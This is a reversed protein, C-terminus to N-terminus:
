TTVENLIAKRVADRDRSINRPVSEGQYVFGTLTSRVNQGAAQDVRHISHITGSKVMVIRNPRPPIALLSSECSRLIERVTADPSPSEMGGSVDGGSKLIANPDRDLLMLEGGWSVDWQPHLYFIFEGQRGRGADNHWGLGSGVPYQWFTFSIMNWDSGPNGFLRTEGYAARALSTFLEPRGNIRGDGINASFSTGRSRRAPGDLTPAIVSQADALKSRGMLLLARQFEEAALFEDYVSYREGIETQRV